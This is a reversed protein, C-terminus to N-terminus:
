TLNTDKNSQCSRIVEGILTVSIYWYLLAGSLDQPRIEIKQKTEPKM